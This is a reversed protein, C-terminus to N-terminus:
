GYFVNYCYTALRCRRFLQHVDLFYDFRAFLLGAGIPMTHRKDPLRRRYVSPEASATDPMLVPDTCRDLDVDQRYARGNNGYREIPKDRWLLRWRYINAVSNRLFGHEDAGCYYYM